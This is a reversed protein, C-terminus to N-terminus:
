GSNLDIPWKELIVLSAILDVLDDDRMQSEPVSKRVHNICDRISVPANANIKAGVCERVAAVVRPAFFDESM